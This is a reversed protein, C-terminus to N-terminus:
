GFTNCSHMHTPTHTYLVGSYIGWRFVCFVPLISYEIHIKFLNGHVVFKYVNQWHFLIIYYMRYHAYRVHKEHQICKRALKPLYHIHFQYIGYINLFTCLTSNNACLVVDMEEPIAHCPVILQKLQFSFKLESILLKSQLKRGNRDRCVM